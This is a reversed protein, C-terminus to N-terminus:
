CDLGSEIEYASGAQCSQSGLAGSSGGFGVDKLGEM